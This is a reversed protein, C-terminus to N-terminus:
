HDSLVVGTGQYKYHDGSVVGTGQYKTIVRFLM